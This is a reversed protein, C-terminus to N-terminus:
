VAISPRGDPETGPPKKGSVPRGARSTNGPRRAQAVVVQHVLHLKRLAPVSLVFPYFDALGMARSLENLVGTLEMWGNVLDLFAQPEDDGNGELMSADFREYDLEVREGDLGFSRATDLTDVLHLYHAWTEAWDEWPHCSAYASVHRTNWDAPPGEGHHRQLAAGYDAREDGFTARFADLWPGTEVLRWWYYHGAEHRLHGLLTRYHEGLDQRRKERTSDDAEEVDLTILGDAHGTMVAPGGPPAGLLDFALGHLPDEGRSQVPLGLAILTSVLRRQANAIRLWRVANEPVALDPLTRTLRCARCLPADPHERLQRDASAILWNCASATGLNSCRRWRAAPTNGRRQSAARWWGTDVGDPGPVPELPLLRGREPAYGLPSQCALCTNNRFFIPRGCQCVFARPTTPAPVRAARIPPTPM